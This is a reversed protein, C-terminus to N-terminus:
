PELLERTILKPRKPPQEQAPALEVDLPLDLRNAGAIGALARRKEGAQAEVEDLVQQPLFV